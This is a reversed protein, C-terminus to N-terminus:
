FKFTDFADAKLIVADGEELHMSSEQQMLSVPDNARCLTALDAIGIECPAMFTAKEGPGVIVAFAQVDDTGGLFLAAFKEEKM